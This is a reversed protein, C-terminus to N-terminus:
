LLRMKTAAPDTATLDQLYDSDSGLVPNKWVTAQAMQNPGFGSLAYADDFGGSGSQAGVARNALPASWPHQWVGIESVPNGELPFDTAYTHANEAKIASIQFANGAAALLVLISV